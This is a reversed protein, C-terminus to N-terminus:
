VSRKVLKSVRRRPPLKKLVVDALGLQRRILDGNKSLVIVRGAQYHRSYAEEVAIKAFETVSAEREDNSKM